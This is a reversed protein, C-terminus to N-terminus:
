WIEIDFVEIEVIGCILFNDLFDNVYFMNVLMIFIFNYGFFVVELWKDDLGVIFNVM